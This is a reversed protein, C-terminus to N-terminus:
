PVGALDISVLLLEDGGQLVVDGGGCAGCIMVPLDLTTAEGCQACVVVAPVHEIELECEALDSGDTLIEWCFSMSEPVVQRLYGIRVSARRVPRGEAHRTVSDAIAECLSLEHM